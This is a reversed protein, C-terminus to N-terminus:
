AYSQRYKGPTIGEKKSFFRIFNQSNTYNLKAAIQSVTMDTGKLLKKALNMKYDEVYDSFSMDKEQKLVKWLYTPHYGLEEACETLTIDGEREEVLKMIGDLIQRSQSMTMTSIKELFPDIMVSKIYRRIRALDYYQTVNQYVKIIPEKFVTDPDIGYEKVGLVIANVYQVLFVVNEKRDLNQLQLFRIFEDTVAYADEKSGTMIASHVNDEFSKDYSISKGSEYEAYFRCSSISQDTVAADIDGVSGSNLALVSEQYCSYLKNQDTFLKSVGTGLLIGKGLGEVYEKVGEYITTPITTADNEEPIQVMAFVARAFYCPEMILHEEYNQKLLAILNYLTAKEDEISISSDDSDAKLIFAMTLFRNVNGKLSLKELYDNIEAESLEGQMLRRQFLQSVGKHLETNSGSLQEISEVVYELEDKGPKLKNDNANAIKHVMTDVPKYIWKFALLIFLVSCVAILLAIVSAYLLNVAEFYSRETAVYFNLESVSTTDEALMYKMGNVVLEPTSDDSTRGIINNAIDSNTSYIIDNNNNTIVLYQGDTICERALKNIANIDINVIIMAKTSGYARPLKLIINLGNMEVTTRYSRELQDPESANMYLWYNKNVEKESSDYLQMVEELNSSDRLKYMGKSSLVWETNFNIFSYGDVYESVINNGSLSNGAKNIHSYDSYDIDNDVLYTIEDMDSFVLYYNYVSNLQGYVQEAIKDTASESLAIAKKEQRTYSNRFYISSFVSIVTIVVFILFFLVRYRYNIYRIKINKIKGLLRM